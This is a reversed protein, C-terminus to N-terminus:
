VYISLIEEKVKEPPPPLCTGPPDYQGEQMEQKQMVDCILVAALAVVPSHQNAVYNNDEKYSM